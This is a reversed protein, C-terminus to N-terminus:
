LNLAKSIITVDLPKLLYDKVMPYSFAKRKDSENLSSTLIIIETNKTITQSIKQFKDMFGFGDLQPMNIDLFIIAPFFDEEVNNNIIDNLYEISELGNNCFHIKGQYDIERKLIFEHLYNTIPDDDIFLLNKAMLDIEM